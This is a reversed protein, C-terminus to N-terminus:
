SGSAGIAASELPVDPAAQLVVVRVPAQAGMRSRVASEINAVFGHPVPVDVALIVQAGAQPATSYRGMFIVAIGPQSELRARVANRVDTSLEYGVPRM